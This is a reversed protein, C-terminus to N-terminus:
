NEVQAPAPQFPQPAAIAALVDARHGQPPPAPRAAAQDPAPTRNPHQQLGGAENQRLGSQKNEPLRAQAAPATPHTPSAQLENQKSPRLEGHGSEPLRVPSEPQSRGPLTPEAIRASRKLWMPGLGLAEHLRLYRSSLM